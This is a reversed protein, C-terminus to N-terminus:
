REPLVEAIKESLQATSFPKPLFGNCGSALLAEVEGELSYGSALIVPIHPDIARLQHFTEGGGMGPMVMDLLVLDIQGPNAKFIAVGETGSGATLVDYGIMELMAKGVTRIVQQDDVLLVTGEGQRIGDLRPRERVAVAAKSQPFACTFTSGQGVRSQVRILGAHNKVIGYTSALGLGTGGGPGRTTFFPEFIRAQTAENMGIGTDQVEVEVYRGPALGFPETLDETYERTRTRVTLTGGGPMAQAANAFLNALVQEIQGRDCDVACGTDQLEQVVKLGRQARGFLEVAGEVIQNLDRTKKEYTGGRAFGLIQRTLGTASHIQNEIKQLRGYDPDSPDKGVQLLSVYGLIGALLNNFDHAIGGALTGVAEMKQAHFLQVQLSRRESIDQVFFLLAPDQDWRIVVGNVDVWVHEGSRRALRLGERTVSGGSAEARAMLELFAERDDEFVVDAFRLGTLQEARYGTLQRLAPNWFRVKGDQLVFIAESANEFLLRYRDESHKLELTREEVRAELDDTLSKLADATANFSDALQEVEDGTRISARVGLEGGRIREAVTKLHLLPTTLQRAFYWALLASLGVCSFGVAVTGLYMTRVQADLAKMSVGVHIWGWDLDYFRVPFVHHYIREGTLRDQDIVRSRTDGLWQNGPASLDIEEWRLPTSLISVGGQRSTVVYRILPNDKIVLSSIDVIGPFDERIYAASNIDVISAITGQIQSELSHRMRAQQRPVVVLAFLTVALVSMLLFM